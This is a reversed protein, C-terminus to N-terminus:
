SCHFLEFIYERAKTSSVYKNDNNYTKILKSNLLSYKYWAFYLM